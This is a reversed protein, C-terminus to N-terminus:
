CGDVVLWLLIDDYSSGDHVCLISLLSFVGDVVVDVVVYALDPRFHSCVWLRCYPKVSYGQQWFRPVRWVQQICESGVLLM